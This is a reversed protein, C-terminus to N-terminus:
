GIIPISKLGFADFFANLPIERGDQVIMSNNIIWNLSAIQDSGEMSANNMAPDNLMKKLDIVLYLSEANPDPIMSANGYALKAMDIDFLGFSGLLNYTDGEFKKTSPFESTNIGSIELLNKIQDVKEDVKRLEGIAEPSNMSENVINIMSRYEPETIKKKSASSFDVIVYHASGPSYAAGPYAQGGLNLPADLNLWVDKTVPDIHAYIKDVRYKIMLLKMLYYINDETENLNGLYVESYSHTLQGRDEVAIIRVTGGIARILSAITIAFDDCDGSGTFNMEEGLTLTDIAYSYSDSDGKMIPQESVYYWGGIGDKGYRLYDYITFVQDLTNDGMHGKIIENAFEKVAIEDKIIKDAFIHEYIDRISSNKILIPISIDQSNNYLDMIQGSSMNELGATQMSFAFPIEASNSPAVLIMVSIALICPLHGHRILQAM